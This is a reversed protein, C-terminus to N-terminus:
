KDRRRWRWPQIPDKSKWLGLNKSKAYDQDEYFTKDTVYKDYVWAHGSRVMLRNIDKKKWYLRGLKRKYIDTGSIHLDIYGEKLLNELYKKAEQGHPQDMEPTDIEVLRVKLLEGKSFVHVTDGDVVRKIKLNELYESSLFTPLSLYLFVIIHKM